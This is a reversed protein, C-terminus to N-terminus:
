LLSICLVLAFRVVDYDIANILHELFLLLQM